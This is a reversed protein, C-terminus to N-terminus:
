VWLFYLSFKSEQAHSIERKVAECAVKAMVIHQPEQVIARVREDIVGTQVPIM